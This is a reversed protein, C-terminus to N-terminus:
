PDVFLAILLKFHSLCKIIIAVLKINEVFIPLKEPHFLPQDIGVRLRASPTPVVGGGDDCRSYFCM